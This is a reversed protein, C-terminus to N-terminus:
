LGAITRVSHGAPPASLHKLFYDSIRQEMYIRDRLRRPSHREDPFLLLDYDKGSAILRNILRATHRFHVNEDILGHVLLLKGKMNPVHDFVASERYGSPNESPLGMYRETYHTDYGDWSTVPAGAVAVHFVDPARCLCMAALYGGYSWGYIGVRAPDAFGRVTLQRVAAVQDLVELRGLRHSIASEFALGRRSSGRNDCKVVCFGLSRLRQARMDACQSWSRNVRQVHPGGYVACVLPYPGPGHIRPDPRYFAAHLSEAGDSSPFTMLEPAALNSAGDPSSSLAKEDRRADYLTHLLKLGTAGPSTEGGGEAVTETGPESFSPVPAFPGGVPVRFIKVSTPRDLDSSTDVVLTCDPDMVVSHMGREETLRLPNAAPLNHDKGPHRGRLSGSTGGTGHGSRQQSSSSSAKGALANMVHKFGRRVGNPHGPPSPPSLGETEMSADGGSGGAPLTAGGGASASGGMPVVIPLAYLHRELVSDYTGTVYVANHELSVGAIGEVAWDGASVQRVLMAQGGNVGPVYTYLYLHSYGSRESGFLFSFSGEPLPDPLPPLFGANSCERPHIPRDLVRLLHHLNIWIDSREVLLTRAKGTALDMRVLVLCNQTRNQWQACASGDPLFDLRALYEQAERPPYFWRAERWNHRVMTERPDQHTPAAGLGGAAPAPEGLLSAADVRVYALKVTPNAKGAFPYRHDEYMCSETTTTECEHHTIRYPPVKSEDVRAFVIGGSDPSWWFGRYRDMEEQAVFDALGHTISHKLDAGFTVQTPPRCEHCPAVFIEGMVCFAFLRGDPSLQPDIASTQMPLSVFQQSQRLVHEMSHKDYVVRLHSTSEIIGDQVYLSGRIPVLIRLTNKHNHTWTFQTLGGSSHMRQRERRLREELSLSDTASSPSALTTAALAATASTSPSPSSQVSPTSLISFASPSSSSASSSSSSQQHHQQQQQQYHHDSDHRRKTRLRLLPRTQFTELDLACLQRESSSVMAATIAPDVRPNAAANRLRRSSTQSASTSSPPPKVSKSVFVLYKSPHSERPSGSSSSSKPSFEMATPSSLGPPPLAAVAEATLNQPLAYHSPPGPSPHHVPASATGAHAHYQQQQQQHQQQQPPYSGNAGGHGHHIGGSSSSGNPHCSPYRHHGHTTGADASSGGRLVGPNAAASSTAGAGLSVGLGEATRDSAGGDTGPAPRSLSSRGGRRNPQLFHGVM